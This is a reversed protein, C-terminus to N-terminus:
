THTVTKKDPRYLPIAKYSMNQEYVQKATIACIPALDKHLLCLYAEVMWIQGQCAMEILKM